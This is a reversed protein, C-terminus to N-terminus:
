LTYLVTNCDHLYLEHQIIWELTQSFLLYQKSMGCFNTNLIMNNINCQFWTLTLIINITYMIIDQIFFYWNTRYLLLSSLSSRLVVWIWLLIYPYRVSCNSHFMIINIFIDACISVESYYLNLIANSSSTKISKQGKLTCSYSCSLQLFQIEIITQKTTVM